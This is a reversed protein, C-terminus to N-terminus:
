DFYPRFSITKQRLASSRSPKGDPRSVECALINRCRHPSSIWETGLKIVDSREFEIGINELNVPLNGKLREDNLSIIHSYIFQNSGFSARGLSIIEDLGVAPNKMLSELAVTQIRVLEERESASSFCALFSSSYEADNDKGIFVSPLSDELGERLNVFDSAKLAYSYDSHMVQIVPSLDGNLKCEMIRLRRSIFKNWRDEFHKYRKALELSDNDPIYSLANITPIVDAGNKLHSKLLDRGDCEGMFALTIAALNSSVKTGEVLMKRMERKVKDQFRSAALVEMHQPHHPATAMDDLLIDICGEPLENAFWLLSSDGLGSCLHLLEEGNVPHKALRNYTLAYYGKEVGMRCLVQAAYDRTGPYSDGSVAMTELREQMRQSVTEDPFYLMLQLLYSGSQLDETEELIEKLGRPVILKM